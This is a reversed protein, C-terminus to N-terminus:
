SLAHQRYLRHKIVKGPDIQDIAWDAYDKVAATFIIVEYYKSMEKLFNSAGPRVLLKGQTGIEFYHVLTEDLDLVLTPANQYIEQKPPLYPALIYELDEEDNETTLATGGIKYVDKLENEQSLKVATSLGELM